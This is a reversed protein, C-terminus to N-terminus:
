YKKRTSTNDTISLVTNSNKDIMTYEVTMYSYDFITEDMLDFCIKFYEAKKPAKVKESIKSPKITGLNDTGILRDKDDYFMIGVDYLTGDFIESKSTPDVIFENNVQVTTSCSVLLVTAFLITILKKM